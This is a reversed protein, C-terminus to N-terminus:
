RKKKMLRWFARYSYSTAKQGADKELDDASKRLWKVLEKVRKKDMDPLGYISLLADYNRTRM